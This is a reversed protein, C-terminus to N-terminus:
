TDFLLYSLKCLGIKFKCPEVEWQGSYPTKCLNPDDLAYIGTDQFYANRSTLLGFLKRQEDYILPNTDIWDILKFTFMKKDNLYEIWELKTPHRNVLFHKPNHDWTWKAHIKQM